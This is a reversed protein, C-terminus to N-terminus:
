GPRGLDVNGQARIGAGRKPIYREIGTEDSVGFQASIHSKAQEEKTM